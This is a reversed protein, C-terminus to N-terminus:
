DNTESDVATRFTEDSTVSATIDSTTFDAPVSILIEQESQM